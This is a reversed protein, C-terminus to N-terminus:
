TAWGGARLGWSRMPSTSRGAVVGTELAALLPRVEPRRGRSWDASWSVGELERRGVDPSPCCGGGWAWGSRGTSSASRRLLYTVPPALHRRTVRRVFDHQLSDNGDFAVIPAEALTASGVGTRSTRPRPVRADRRRRVAAPRPARRPLRAGAEARGHDGGDGGRPAAARGHAHPGGPGGRLRGRPAADAGRRPRRRVLRLPRRREGAIPCRTDVVDRVAVAEDEVLEALM